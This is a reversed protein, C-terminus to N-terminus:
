RLAQSIRTLEGLFVTIFTFRIGANDRAEQREVHYREKTHVIVMTNSDKMNAEGYSALLRHRARSGGHYIFKDKLM